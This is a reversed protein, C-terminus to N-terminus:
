SQGGELQKNYGELVVFAKMIANYNETNGSGTDPHELRVLRRMQTKAQKLNVPQGVEPDNMHLFECADEVQKRTILEVKENGARRRYVKIRQAFGAIAQQVDNELSTLLELRAMDSLDAAQATVITGILARLATWQAKIGKPDSQAPVARPRQLYSAQRSNPIKTDLEALVLTAAEDMSIKDVKARLRIASNTVSTTGPAWGKADAVKWLSDPADHLNGRCLYVYKSETKGLINWFFMVRKSKYPQRDELTTMAWIENECHVREYETRCERHRQVLDALEESSFAM